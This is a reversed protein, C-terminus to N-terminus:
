QVVQLGVAADCDDWCEQRKKEARRRCQYSEYAITSYGRLSLNFAGMPDALALHGVVSVGYRATALAATRRCNSIRADYERMCKDHCRGTYFSLGSPSDQVIESDRPYVALLDDIAKRTAAVWQDRSQGNGLRHDTPDGAAIRLREASVSDGQLAAYFEIPIGDTDRLDPHAGLDLLEGVGSTSFAAIHLPSMGADNVSDIGVGEHILHEAISKRSVGNRDESIGSAYLSHLTTWGADDLISHVDSGAALLEHAVAFEGLRLAMHLAPIGVDITEVDAGSELLGPVVEPAHIIAMHLPTLNGCLPTADSVIAGARTDALLQSCAGYYFEAGDLVSKIGVVNSTKAPAGLILSPLVLLSTLMQYTLNKNLKRM